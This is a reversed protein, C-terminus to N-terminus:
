SKITATVLGDNKSRCKNVDIKKEMGRYYLECINETYKAYSIKKYTPLRNKMEIAREIKERRKQGLRQQPKSVAYLRNFITQNNFVRKTVNRKQHRRGKQPSLRVSRNLPQARQQYTSGECLFKTKAKHSLKPAKETEAIIQNELKNSDKLNQQLSPASQKTVCLKKATVCLEEISREKPCEGLDDSACVSVIECQIRDNVVDAKDEKVERSNEGVSDRESGCIDDRAENSEKEKEQSTRHTSLNTNPSPYGPYILKVLKSILCIFVLSACM